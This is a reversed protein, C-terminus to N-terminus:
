TQFTPLILNTIKLRASTLVTFSVFNLVYKSKTFFLYLYVQENKDSKQLIKPCGADVCRYYSAWLCCGWHLQPTKPPKQRNQSILDQNKSFFAILGKNNEFGPNIWVHVRPTQLPTSNHLGFDLIIKPILARLFM